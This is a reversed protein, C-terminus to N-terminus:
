SSFAHPAVGVPVKLVNQSGGGRESVGGGHKAGQRLRQLRPALNCDAEQYNIKALENFFRKKAQEWGDISACPPKYGLFM